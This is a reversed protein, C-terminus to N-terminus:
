TPRDRFPPSGIPGTIRLFGNKQLVIMRGDPLVVASTPSLLGSIVTAHQFGPLQALTPGTRLLAPLLLSAGALSSLFLNKKIATALSRMWGKVHMTSVPISEQM